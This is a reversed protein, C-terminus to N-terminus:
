LNLLSVSVHLWRFKICKIQPSKSMLLFFVLSLFLDFPYEFGGAGPSFQTDFLFFNVLYTESWVAAVLRVSFLRLFCVQEQFKFIHRVFNFDTERRLWLILRRRLPPTEFLYLPVAVVDCTGQVHGARPPCCSPPWDEVFKVKEAGWEAWSHLQHLLCWGAM